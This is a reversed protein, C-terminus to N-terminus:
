SVVKPNITFNIPKDAYDKKTSDQLKNIECFGRNYTDLRSVDNYSYKGFWDVSIYIIESKFASYGEELLMELLYGNLLKMPLTKLCFGIDHMVFAKDTLRVSRFFPKLIKPVSAFDTIFGPKAIFEYDGHIIRYKKTFRFYHKQNIGLSLALYPTIQQCQIGFGKVLENDIYSKM